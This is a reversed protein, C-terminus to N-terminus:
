GELMARDASNSEDVEKFDEVIKVDVGLTSMEEVIKPRVGNVASSSFSIGSSSFIAKFFNDLFSEVVLNFTTM